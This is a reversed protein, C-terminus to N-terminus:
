GATRAIAVLEPLDVAATFGVVRYNSAHVKLVLATAPGLARRYDDAHTRNTTGVERLRAGSKAMVDPIRFAGGIEVLEGRSVIVDRDAALTNLALLVAAANNNVVLSAEAGTLARLDDAVLADRDGRRGTALDLELNVAGRAAAVLAEVAAEALPARGLNTHLVVGTANVVRTLRPTATAELEAEAQAILLEDPPVTGSAELTRRLEQLVRRLADVVRARQWRALLAAAAPTRLLREVSPIARQPPLPRPQVAVGADHGLWPAERLRVRHPRSRKRGRRIGAKGEAICARTHSKLTGRCTTELRRPRISLRKKRPGNEGAPRRSIGSGDNGASSQSTSRVRTQPM